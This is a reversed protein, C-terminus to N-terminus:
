KVGQPSEDKEGEQLVHNLAGLVALRADKHTTVERYRIQEYAANVIDSDGTVGDRLAILAARAAKRFMDADVSLGTYPWTEWPAYEAFCKAAKEEDAWQDYGTVSLWAAKAMKEIVDM